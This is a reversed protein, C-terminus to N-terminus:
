EDAADSTYLLCDGHIRQFTRGEFHPLLEAHISRVVEAYRDRVVTPLLGQELLFDLNQLLWTAPEMRPRSDASRQRGVSHVRALLRGLQELQDDTMEEPARGGFRPFLAYRIGHVEALTTDGPLELPAAVPVEAEELDLLFEHEDLIADESWRGPRYFKAVVYRGDDLELQYVRNEYSNLVIFRGTCRRGDLEM